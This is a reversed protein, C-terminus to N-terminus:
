RDKPGLDNINTRVTPDFNKIVANLLTSIRKKTRLGAEVHWKM